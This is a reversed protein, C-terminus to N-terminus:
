SAGASETADSPVAVFLSLAAVVRIDMIRWM